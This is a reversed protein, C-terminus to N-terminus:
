CFYCHYLTCCSYKLETSIISWWQGSCYQKIYNNCLSCSHLNLVSDDAFIAGGNSLAINNTIAHEPMVVLYCTSLYVHGGKEASNYSSSDNVFLIFLEKSYQCHLGGGSVEAKNFLFLTNAISSVSTSEKLYIAGGSKGASNNRFHCLDITLSSFTSFLAGGFVRASNAIFFNASLTLQSSNSYIAGGSTATNNM